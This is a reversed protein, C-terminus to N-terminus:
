PESVPAEEYGYAAAVDRTYKGITALDAASFDHQYYNRRTLKPGWTQCLGADTLACHALIRELTQAGHACLDEYRVVLARGGHDDSQLLDRKVFGYISAWYRAWGSVEDGCRFCALIEAQEDANGAHIPRRVLGFEFHGVRELHARARENDRLAASFLRHQRISSAIQTLPHRIPIVFRADPFLKQLYGLRTVNYNGKTLYRSGGRVMLLKSIHQRYFAEFAPNDVESGLLASHEPDHLRSFFAMWLGEEMAEPSDSNVMIGDRHARESVAAPPREAHRLFWNWFYPVFLLPYDKYRHTVVESHSALAELLVTTGARALGCVYLPQRVPHEALEEKLLSTELDGLWRWLGPQRAVWGSMLHVWTAVRLEPVDHEM